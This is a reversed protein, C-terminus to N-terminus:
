IYNLGQDKDYAANVKGEMNYSMPAYIGTRHQSLCPGWDDTPKFAAKIGRDSSVAKIIEIVALIPICILAVVVMGWGLGNAWGPYTYGNYSAPGYNICSFIILFTLLVVTLGGWCIMWYMWFCLNKEGIMMEIDKIFRKIGYIWSISILEFLAVFMLSFGASYWDFLTMVYVGVRTCQPLGILFFAICLGLTVFVKKTRLSKFEDCLATIVTEMMAFQSDLGLLFLMFFFLISWLPSIPMLAIGEPYAVFALGPGSDVVDEVCKGTKFSLHGLVSFIVFGAFISTSCNLVAVIIADRYCNNKFRNYSSMAQLGGFAVGLSYFIQVAAEYWPKWNALLEWRPVVYYEIGIIAGELTVNRFFLIILVVYPFIATFYVVKGSSKIGRSLCVFIVIWALLLCLVLQWRFESSGEEMTPTIDLVSYFWYCATPTSTTINSEPAPCTRNETSITTANEDYPNVCNYKEEWEPTCQEWPLNKTFSAFFYYITYAIIMNYYICVLGSIFCMAYGLGRAVPVANWVSIPGQSSFQGWSLEMFFLPLGAIILMCIYPILFTAGGNEYAKYPFRWVNGLGVAYGITSLLFDMKGSWNGREKNEDESFDEKSDGFHDVDYSEESKCCGM